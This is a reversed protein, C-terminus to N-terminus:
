IEFVPGNYIPLWNGEKAPGPSERQLYIVLSGDKELKLTPSRTM